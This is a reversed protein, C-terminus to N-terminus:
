DRGQPAHQKYGLGFSSLYSLVFFFYTKDTLRLLPITRAHPIITDRARDEQKRREQSSKQSPEWKPFLIAMYSHMEPFAKIPEEPDCAWRQALGRTSPPTHQSVLSSWTELGPHTLSAGASDSRTSVSFHLSTAWDHRVRLSGMSQLGGPEETWPIKWALTSFHTAM